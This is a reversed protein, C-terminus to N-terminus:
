PTSSTPKDGVLTRFEKLHMLGLVQDIISKVILEGSIYSPIYNPMCHLYSSQVYMLFVVPWIKWEGCVAGSHSQPPALSKVLDVYSKAYVM